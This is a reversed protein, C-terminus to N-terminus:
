KGKKTPKFSDIPLMKEIVEQLDKELVVLSPLTDMIDKYNWRFNDPDSDISEQLKARIGPVFSDITLKDFEDKFIATWGHHVHFPVTEIEEKGNRTVVRAVNVPNPAVALKIQGREEKKYYHAM